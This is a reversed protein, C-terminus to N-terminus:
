TIWAQQQLQNYADLTAQQRDRAATWFFTYLAFGGSIVSIIMAIISLATEM